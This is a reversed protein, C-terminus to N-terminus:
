QVPELNNEFYELYDSYNVRPIIKTMELKEITINSKEFEDYQSAECNKYFYDNPNILISEVLKKNECNKTIMISNPIYVNRDIDIWTPYPVHNNGLESQFHDIFARATFKSVSDSVLIYELNNIHILITNGIFKQGYGGSFLTMPTVPSFGVFVNKVPKQNFDNLIYDGNKTKTLKKTIEKYKPLMKIDRMRKIEKYKNEYEEIEETSLLIEKGDVFKVLKYDESDSDDDSPPIYKNIIISVSYLYNPDNNKNVIVKFPRSGNDFTDYIGYGSLNEKDCKNECFPCNCVMRNTNEMMEFEM